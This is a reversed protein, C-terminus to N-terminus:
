ASLLKPPATDPPHSVSRTQAAARGLPSGAYLPVVQADAKGVAAVAASCAVSCSAIDGAGCCGDAAAGSVTMCDAGAAQASALPLGAIM